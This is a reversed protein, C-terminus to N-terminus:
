TKFPYLKTSRGSVGRLKSSCLWKRTKNHPRHKLPVSLLGRVNEIIAYKPMLGEILDIFHLFVNGRMDNLSGRKGATSFAQCPPGGAIAFLDGKKLDHNKLLKKATLERIDCNYLPIDPKNLQITECFREEIENYSIPSFGAKDLGLDLGLAGSFFSMYKYFKSM